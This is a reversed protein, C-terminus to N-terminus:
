ADEDKPAMMRECLEQVLAGLGPCKADIDSIIGEMGDSPEDQSEPADEETEEPEKDDMSGGMSGSLGKKAMDAALASAKAVPLAM